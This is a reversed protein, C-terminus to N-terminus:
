CKNSCQVNFAIVVPICAVINVQRVILEAFKGSRTKLLEVLNSNVESAADYDLDNKEKM